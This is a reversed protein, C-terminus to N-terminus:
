YRVTIASSDAPTLLMSCKAKQTLNVSFDPESIRVIVASTKAYIDVLAYSSFCEICQNRFFDSVHGLDPNCRPDPTRYPLSYTLFFLPTNLGSDCLFVWICLKTSYSGYNLEPLKGHRCTCEHLGHESNDIVDKEKTYVGGLSLSGILNVSINSFHQFM